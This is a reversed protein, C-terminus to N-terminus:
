LRLLLYSLLNELLKTWLFCKLQIHSTTKSKPYTNQWSLYSIEKSNSHVRLFTALSFLERYIQYVLWLWVRMPKLKRFINKIPWFKFCMWMVYEKRSSKSKKQNVRTFIQVDLFYQIYICVGFSILWSVSVFLYMNKSTESM